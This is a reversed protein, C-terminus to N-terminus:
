PRAHIHNGCVDVGVEITEARHHGGPTEVRLGRHHEGPGLLARQALEEHLAGLVGEIDPPGPIDVQLLNRAQHQDVHAIGLADPREGLDGPAGLDRHMDVVVMGFARGIQLRIELSDLRDTRRHRNQGVQEHLAADRRVPLLRGHHHQTQVLIGAAEGEGRGRLLIVLGGSEQQAM